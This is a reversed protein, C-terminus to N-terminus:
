VFLFLYGVSWGVLPGVYHIISDCDRSQHFLLSIIISTQINKNIRLCFVIKVFSLQADIQIKDAFMQMARSSLSETKPDRSVSTVFLELASCLSRAEWAHGISCSIKSSALTIFNAFFDLDISSLFRTSQHGLNKRQYNRFPLEIFHNLNIHIPATARYYM